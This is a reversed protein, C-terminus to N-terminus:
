RSGAVPLAGGRPLLALGALLLLGGFQLVAWPLVNGTAAWAHVALPGLGLIGLGLAAAARGSVRAGALGLLGAFAVAMAQRDVALGADDPALHYWASGAATLLLGAFFLAGMAREMNDLARPPLRWLQVLGSLGALAFPLNSLVDLACPIGWLTRGDAFHHHGAPQAVAPGLLALLLLATCAALLAAERGFPRDQFHFSPSM